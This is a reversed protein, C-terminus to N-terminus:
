KVFQIGKKQGVKGIRVYKGQWAPQHGWGWGRGRPLAGSLVDGKFGCRREEWVVMAELLVLTCVLSSVNECDGEWPAM